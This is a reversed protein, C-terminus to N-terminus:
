CIWLLCLKSRLINLTKHILVPFILLNVLHLFFSLLFSYFYSCMMLLNQYTMLLLLLLTCQMHMHAHIHARTETHAHIHTQIETHIYFCIFLLYSFYAFYYHSFVGWLLSFYEGICGVDTLETLISVLAEQKCLYYFIHFCFVLCNSFCCSSVPSLMYVMTVTSKQFLISALASLHYIWLTSLVPLAM